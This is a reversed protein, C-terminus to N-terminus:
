RLLSTGVALFLIFLMPGVLTLCLGIVACKRKQDRQFLGTVALLLGLPVGGCYVIAPIGLAYLIGQNDTVGLAVAAMVDLQVLLMVAGVFCSAIGLVSEKRPERRMFWAAYGSMAGLVVITLILLSAVTRRPGLYLTLFNELGSGGFFGLVGLYM